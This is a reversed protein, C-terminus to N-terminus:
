KTGGLIQGKSCNQPEWKGCRCLSTVRILPSRPCHLFRNLLAWMCPLVHFRTSCITINAILVKNALLSQLWEWWCPNEYTETLKTVGLFVCQCCVCQLHDPSTCTCCGSPTPTHLGACEWHTQVPTRPHPVTTM